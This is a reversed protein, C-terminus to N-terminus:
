KRKLKLKIAKKKIKKLELIVDLKSKKGFGYKLENYVEYFTKIIPDNIKIYYNWNKQLDTKNLTKVSDTNVM